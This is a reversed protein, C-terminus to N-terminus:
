PLSGRSRNRASEEVIGAVQQLCTQRSFNALAYKRGRGGMAQRTALDTRLATQLLDRLGPVDGPRCLWGCRSDRLDDAADTEEDVAAIIPKGSLMYSICKSPTSSLAAGSRTPLVFADAMSQVRAVRAPDPESRFLVWRVGLDYALSECDKKMSGEGIIVLQAVGEPVTAFARIATDLSSLASLNGLYMFTFREAPVDYEACVLARDHAAEFPSADVWNRVVRAREGIGRSAAYARCIRSSILLVASCRSVMRRDWATLGRAVGRYVWSPLKTRLSEPYVDQVHLVVPVGLARATNVISSQGFMPWVNAYVADLGDKRVCDQIL